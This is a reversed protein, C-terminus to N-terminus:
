FWEKWTRDCLLSPKGYDPEQKSEENRKAVGGEYEIIINSKRQDEFTCQIRKFKDKGLVQFVVKQVGVRVEQM